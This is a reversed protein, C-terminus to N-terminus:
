NSHFSSATATCISLYFSRISILTKKMDHDASFISRKIHHVISVANIIVVLVRRYLIGIRALVYDLGAGAM